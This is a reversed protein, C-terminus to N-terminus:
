PRCPLRRRRRDRGTPGRVARRAGRRHFAEFPATEVAGIQDKFASAILGNCFPATLKVHYTIARVIHARIGDVARAPRLPERLPDSPIARNYPLTRTPSTLCPPLM